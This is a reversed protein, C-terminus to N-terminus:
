KKWFRPVFLVLVTYVELRGVMMAFSLFWKIWDPFDAYNRAPGILGFGPGINGVTALATTFSTLIDYGGLGVVLTTIVLFLIYLFFFGAINSVNDRTVTEGNVTFNFVSRPHMFKKMETVGLKFLTTIRVVKIGGGTSGASGGIFMLIFLIVQTFHPWAAFDATAFGTTTLISAVQFSAYQLSTGFTPYVADTTLKLAVMLSAIVFISLYVKFETNKFLDRIKGTFLKFYLVFNLGAMVMFATIVWHIFPSSFHGVSLNKSSFGGTAMTGFTHISADFLDMGGVMLLITEAVSLGVYILWLIKATGAIRTSIKDMSPGPAEAKVLNIGFVGLLPLIAVTLVVIGMGGLWHTLSRWFLVARPLGEIDRLISAGTTTFGSMTEFFADTYSPIAGSLYLPLAGVLSAIVWSMSVMLFGDRAKFSNNIGKRTLMFAVLSLALASAITIGFARESVLDRDVFAIELPILMFVAILFILISISNIILRKNM